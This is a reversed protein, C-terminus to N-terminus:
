TSMVRAEIFEAFTKGLEQKQDECLFEDIEFFFQGELDYGFLTPGAERGIFIATKYNWPDSHYM